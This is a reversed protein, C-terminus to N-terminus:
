TAGGDNDLKAALDIRREIAEMHEPWLAVVVGWLALAERVAGREDQEARAIDAVVHSAPIRLPAPVTDPDLQTLDDPATPLLMRLEDYLSAIYAAWDGLAAHARRIADIVSADSPAAHQVNLLHELAARPRGLRQLYITAIRKELELADLGDGAVSLAIELHDTAVEWEAFQEAIEALLRRAGEHRPERELVPDLWRQAADRDGREWEVQALLLRYTDRLDDNQANALRIRLIEVQGDVSGQEEYIAEIANLVGPRAGYGTPDLDRVAHLWPLAADNDELEYYLLEALEFTLEVNRGGVLQGSQLLAELAAALARDDQAARAATVAAELDLLDPADPPTDRQLITALASGVALDLDPLKPPQRFSADYATRFQALEESVVDALEDFELELTDLEMPRTPPDRLQEATELEHVTPQLAPPLEDVEDVDEAVVAFEATDDLQAAREFSRPIARDLEAAQQEHSAAIEDRGRARYAAAIALHTAVHAERVAALRRPEERAAALQLAALAETRLAIAESHQRDEDLLAAVGLLLQAHAVADGTAHPDWLHLARQAHTLAQALNGLAEFWLQGIRLLLRAAAADDGRQRAATVAAGLTNVARAPDGAHGWFDAHAYLVDVDDPAIRAARALYARAEDLGEAGQRVMLHRALRVYAAVQAAPDPAVVTLRTLAAELDSWRQAAELADAHATLVAFNQPEARLADRLRQAARVPDTSILQEAVVLECMARAFSEGRAALADAVRVWSGLPLLPLPPPPHQADPATSSAPARLRMVGSRFEIAHSTSTRDPPLWGRRGLVHTLVLEVANCEVLGDRVRVPGLSLAPGSAAVQELFSTALADARTRDDDGFLYADRVSWTTVEAGSPPVDPALRFSLVALADTLHVRAGVLVGGDLRVEVDSFEELEAFAPRLARALEAEHVRVDLEDLVCATDRFQAVGGSADFPFTLGPIEMRLRHVVCWSSLKINDTWLFGRGYLFDLNLSLSSDVPPRADM